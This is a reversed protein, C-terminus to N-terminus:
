HHGLLLTSAWFLGVGLFVVAPLWKNQNENVRPMLDTTAVHIFTGASLALAIEKVPVDIWQFLIYILVTGVISSLALLVTAMLSHRRSHHSVYIISSITFGEPLKHLVTGLFVTVGIQFGALMGSAIAVGSFFNHVMLGILATTGVLHSVLHQHIEEGYHFHPTFVHEFLQIILYGLIVLLMTYPAGEYAEPIMDLFAVALIYGAGLAIFVDLYKKEWQRRSAFIWGGAIILLGSILSFLLSYELNM